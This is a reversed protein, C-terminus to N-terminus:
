EALEAIRAEIAAKAGKRTKGDTEAKLLASLHLDYTGTALGEAVDANSGDLLTLALREDNTEPTSEEPVPPEETANDDAAGWDCCGAIARKRCMHRAIAVNPATGLVKLPRGPHEERIDFGDANPAYTFRM